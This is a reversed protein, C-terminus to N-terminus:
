RWHGNRRGDGTSCQLYGFDQQLSSVFNELGKIRDFAIDIDKRSKDYANAMGIHDKGLREFSEKMSKVTFETKGAGASLAESNKKLISLAAELEKLSKEIRVKYSNFEELVLYDVKKQPECVEENKKNIIEVYGEHSSNMKTFNSAQSNISTRTSLYSSYFSCCKKMHGRKGCYFCFVEPCNRKYHGELGCGFCTSRYDHSMRPNNMQHRSEQSKILMEKRSVQNTMKEDYKRPATQRRDVQKQCNQRGNLKKIGGNNM